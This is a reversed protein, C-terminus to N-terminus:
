EARMAYVITSWMTAGLVIVVVAIRSLTLPQGVVMAVLGRFVDYFLEPLAVAVASGAILWLLALVPRRWAPLTAAAPLQAMVKATFGDDAVYAAAHERADAKLAQELWGNDADAHKTDM